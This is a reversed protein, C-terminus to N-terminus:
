ARQLGLGPVCAPLPSPLSLASIGGTMMLCVSGEGESRGKRVQQSLMLQGGGWGVALAPMLQGRGAVGGAGAM